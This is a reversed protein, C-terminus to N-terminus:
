SGTCFEPFQNNLEELDEWTADEKFKNSWRILRITVVKNGQKMMKMEIVAM